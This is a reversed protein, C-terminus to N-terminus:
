ANLDVQTDFQPLDTRDNTAVILAGSRLQLKMVGRVMAIGEADLNAMPEDLILVPPHHLLAIAYKVRQKMGSSFTRLIDRARGALGVAGLLELIRGPENRLGRLQLSLALMEAATFEEYLQLYPAVCGVWQFRGATRDSVGITMSVKGDTPTLVEAIIKVLTSKGSGNRGSILMTQGERLSFSIGRFITRRNFDKRLEAGAISLEM